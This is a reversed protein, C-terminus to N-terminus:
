GPCSVPCRSTPPSRTSAPDTMDAFWSASSGAPSRRGVPLSSASSASGHRGRRSPARRDAEGFADAAEAWLGLRVLEWGRQLPGDHFLCECWASGNIQKIKLLITNRGARLAIPVRNEGTGDLKWAAFGDFALRGNVWLRADSGTRLLLSATRDRDAQVYTLAYSSVNPNGAALTGMEIRGTNPTAPVAQWTLARREDVSAVPRSPDPDIEPPRARDFPEPYPGAVWWGAELFQDLEGKGLASARAFGRRSAPARGVRCPDPRDRDVAAPPRTRPGPEQGPRRGDSGEPRAQRLGTRPHAVSRRRAPRLAIAAAFETEAKKVQGFAYLVRGRFLRDYPSDPLPKGEITLHAERRVLRFYVWDPWDPKVLRMAPDVAANRTM